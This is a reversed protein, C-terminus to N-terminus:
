LYVGRTEDYPRFARRDEKWVRRVDAETLTSDKAWTCAYVRGRSEVVAVISQGRDKIEVRMKRPTPREAHLGVHVRLVLKALEYADDATNCETESEGRRKIEQALEVLQQLVPVGHFARNRAEVDARALALKPFDAVRRNIVGKELYTDVVAWKGTASMRGVRYRKREM